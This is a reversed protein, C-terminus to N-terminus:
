GCFHVIFSSPASLLAPSLLSLLFIGGKKPFTIFFWTPSQPQQSTSSVSALNWCARVPWFRPAAAQPARGVYSLPSNEERLTLSSSHLQEEGWIITSWLLCIEFLAIFIVKQEWKCQGHPVPAPYERGHAAEWVSLASAAVAGAAGAIQVEEAEGEDGRGKPIARKWKRREQFICLNFKESPFVLWKNM